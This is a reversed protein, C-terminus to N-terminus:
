YRRRLLLDAIELDLPEDIDISVDTPMVYPVIPRGYMEGREIATPRVVVVAPGNVAFSRPLDRRGFVPTPSAVFPVLGEATLKLAKLPHFIHPPEIVSLVSEANLMLRFSRFPRM